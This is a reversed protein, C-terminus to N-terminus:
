PRWAARWGGNWCRSTADSSTSAATTSSTTTSNSTTTLPSTPNPSSRAASKGGRSSVTSGERLRVLDVPRCIFDYLHLLEFELEPFDSIVIVPTHKVVSFRHLRNVIEIALLEPMVVEIIILDPRLAAAEQVAEISAPICSASHGESVLFSSLLGCLDSSQNIILINLGM